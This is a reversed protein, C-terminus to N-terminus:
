IVSPLSVKLNLSKCHDFNNEKFKQFLDNFFEDIYFLGEM